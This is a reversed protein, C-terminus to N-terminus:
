VHARGIQKKIKELSEEFVRCFYMDMYIRLAIEKTLFRGSELEQGVDGSYQYGVIRGSKLEFPKQREAPDIQLTKVM